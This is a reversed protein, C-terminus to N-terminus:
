AEYVIKGRGPIWDITIGILGKQLRYQYVGRVLAAQEIRRQLLARSGIDSRHFVGWGDTLYVHPVAQEAIESAEPITPAKALIEALRSGKTIMTGDDQLDLSGYFVQCGKARIKEEEVAAPHGAALDRREPYGKPAICKVVTAVEEFELKAKALREDVLLECLELFDTKLIPLVNVAEPDGFRAYFEIITPGWLPTLMMQGAIVGKYRVGTEKHLAEVVQQIIEASKKVEEETLFPLAYGPGAISGMGGTEPGIDMEFANKNDQVAPFALVTQGDTLCQVTYEPGEVREEILIRDEIDTYGAMYKEYVQKAHHMKVQRKESTLYAQLDAIVKVGKGGAQRAPKIAVSEAYEEIYRIADELNRFAKFRLRGPIKYKWMLRRMYAKSMEVEAVERRAGVCPVGCREEVVNAVGRFLPEEPGVVVLDVGFRRVAEAVTEPDRSNGLMVEGGHQKVLRFIGPNRYRMVAYFRELLGSRCIADAIAHERAGEGVLLVKVKARGRV